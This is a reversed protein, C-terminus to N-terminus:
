KMWDWSKTIEILGPENLLWDRASSCPWDTPSGALGAEVPNNHIYELKTRFQKESYVIVDDFRRMWLTGSKGEELERIRRATLGKFAQMFRSLKTIDPFGLLAHIHTPMVVYGIIAVDFFRGTEALQSAVEEAAGSSAFVPNWDAVTTTVFALAPGSM